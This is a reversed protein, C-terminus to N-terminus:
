AIDGVGALEMKVDELLSEGQQVSLMEAPAFVGMDLAGNRVTAEVDIAHRYARNVRENVLNSSVVDRNTAIHM